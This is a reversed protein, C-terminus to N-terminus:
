AALLRSVRTAAPLGDIADEFTVDAELTFPGSGKQGSEFAAAELVSVVRQGLGRLSAEPLDPLAIAFSDNSLRAVLDNIRVLGALLGGAQAMAVRVFPEAVAFDANPVLRVVAVTRAEGENSLFDLYSELYERSFLGTDPDRVAGDGMADFESRIQSHILHYSAPELIRNTIEDPHDEASIVDTAIDLLEQPCPSPTDRRVLCVKPMHHLRVNRQMSTLISQAPEASDMADMIVADFERGHLYDFATFSTFAAVVEVNRERLANLVVMFEPKAKGIFLVRLSRALVSEPITHDQDFRSRLVQTRRLLEHQMTQLRVMSDVRGAIQKPHCPHYLVSDIGHPRTEKAGLYGIVPVLPSAVHAKVSLLLPEAEHILDFLSLLIADPVVNPMGRVVGEHALAVQVRYGLTILTQGIESIGDLTDTVVLVTQARTATGDSATLADFSDITWRTM